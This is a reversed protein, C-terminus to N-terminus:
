LFNIMSIQAQSVNTDSVKKGVNKQKYMKISYSSYFLVLGILVPYSTLYGNNEFQYSFNKKACLTRPNFIKLAKKVSLLSYNILFYVFM